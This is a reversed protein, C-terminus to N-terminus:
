LADAEHSVLEIFQESLGGRREAGGIHVGIVTVGAAQAAALVERTRALETEVTVGAAGFGKVSAGMVIIVTTVGDVMDAEAHADYVNEVGGRELLTKVAFADLAQGSSTVLTDAASVANAFVLSAVLIVSGTFRTFLSMDNSVIPFSSSP